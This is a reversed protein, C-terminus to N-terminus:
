KSCHPLTALINAADQWIGQIEAVSFLRQAPQQECFRNLRILVATAQELQKSLSKAREYYFNLDNEAGELADALRQVREDATQAQKSLRSLEDAAEMIDDAQTNPGEADLDLALLRLFAAHKNQEQTIM